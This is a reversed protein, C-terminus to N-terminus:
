IDTGLVSYEGVVAIIESATATLVNMCFTQRSYDADSILEVFCSWCKYCFHAASNNKVRSLKRIYGLQIVSLIVVLNFIGHLHLGEWQM